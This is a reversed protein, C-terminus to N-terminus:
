SYDRFHQAASVCACPVDRGLIRTEFINSHLCSAVHKAIPAGVLLVISPGSCSQWTQCVKARLSAGWESAEGDRPAAEASDIVVVRFGEARRHKILPDISERLKPAVVAIWHAQQRMTSQAPLPDSILLTTALALLLRFM